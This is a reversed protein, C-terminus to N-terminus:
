RLRTHFHSRPLFTQVSHMIFHLYRQALFANATLKTLESSMTHTRVIREDPVWNRYISALVEISAEDDGGILVRDPNALDQMATGEALFEPNSLISFTAGPNKCAELVRKISECTRVPVTSKEVIIRNEGEPTNRAIARACSEVNALHCAMGAGVGHTKTPTSVSIFIIDADRISAVVDTLFFLNKGRVEM